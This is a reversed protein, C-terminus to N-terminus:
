FFVGRLVSIPDLRKSTLDLVALVQRTRSFGANEGRFSVGATVYIQGGDDSIALLDSIWSDNFEEPLIPEGNKVSHQLVGSNIDLVGANKGTVRLLLRM